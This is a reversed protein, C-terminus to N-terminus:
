RVKPVLEIFEAWEQPTFVIVPSADGLKGDRLYVNGGSGGEGVEICSGNSCRSAPAFGVELCNNPGCASATGYEVGAAPIHRVEACQGGSCFSSRTWSM